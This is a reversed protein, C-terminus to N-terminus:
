PRGLKEGAQGPTFSGKVRIEDTKEKGKGGGWLGRSLASRSYTKTVQGQVGWCSPFQNPV